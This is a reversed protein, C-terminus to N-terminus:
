AYGQYLQNEEELFLKDKGPPERVARFNYNVRNGCLDQGQKYQKLFPARWGGFPEFDKFNTQGDDSVYWLETRGYPKWNNGVIKEWEKKTSRFRVTGFCHRQNDVEAVIEEIFKQHASKEGPWNTLNQVVIYPHYVFGTGDIATCVDEIQKRPNGCRYCPTIYFTCDIRLAKVLNQKIYPNVQGDSRLAEFHLRRFGNKQFCEISKVLEDTDAVRSFGATKWLLLSFLCVIYFSYKM